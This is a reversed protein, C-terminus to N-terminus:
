AVAELTAYAKAPNTSHQIYGGVNLVDIGGAVLQAANTNNVGGDWGIELSPKLSRLQLVKSLLRLDATGGYHGLYGSFILVHDILEMAPAIATVPTQPLLAVGVEIGHRHLLTAFPMFAGEAEAHVIIMRPALGILARTYAFPRRYMVHMDVAVNAPWYAQDVDISKPSAFMGDMMDIHLRQAFPLVRRMQLRYGNIEEALITPCVAAKM